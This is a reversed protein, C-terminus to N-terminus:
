LYEWSSCSGQIQKCFVFFLFCCCFVWKKIYYKAKYWYQIWALVYLEGIQKDKLSLLLVCNSPSFYIQFKESHFFVNGSVGHPKFSNANYIYKKVQFWKTNGRWQMGPPFELIWLSCIDNSYVLFLLKRQVVTYLTYVDKVDCHRHLFTYVWLGVHGTVM